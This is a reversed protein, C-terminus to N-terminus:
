KGGDKQSKGTVLSRKAPESLGEYSTKQLITNNIERLFGKRSQNVEIISAVRSLCVIFAERFNVSLYDGALDLLLVVQSVGKGDLNSLRLDRTFYGLRDWVGEFEAKVVGTKPDKIIQIIRSLKATLEPTISGSKGWVNETTMYGLDLPTSPNSMRNNLAEKDKISNILDENSYNINNTEDNM